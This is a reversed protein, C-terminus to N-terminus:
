DAAPLFLAAHAWAPGTEGHPWAPGDLPIYGPTATGIGIAPDPALTGTARDLRLVYVGKEKEVEAGVVIRDSAPDSAAWHANFDGALALRSVERPAAPDSVDLVFVTQSEAVPMLWLDGVVVPVSCGVRTMSKAPDRGHIDYVHALAPADSDIGTLRYFGCMYANMLVSGDRMRRPGFPMEGAWDLPTGDPRRGDPMPLTHLLRFDSYRWIQVVNASHKEMMRASTTVIRDLDLMPVIAYTRIPDAIGPVAASAWRVLEGGATYEAIGGHGGPVPDDAHPSSGDSRLFGAIVGGDPLRAFDHPFRLTPPLPLTRGITLAPAKSVDVLLTAEPHHANAFLPRGAPPLVYETHHPMAGRRGIPTTAIVEGLTPSGARLDVVAFFDEDAGDHDGAFLLLYPSPAAAVPPAPTPLGACGVALLSALLLCRLKM